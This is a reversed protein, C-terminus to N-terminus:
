IAKGRDRGVRVLVRFVCETHDLHIRKATDVVADLGRKRERREWESGLVPVRDTIDSGCERCRWYEAPVDDVGEDFGLHYRRAIPKCERFEGAHTKQFDRNGLIVADLAVMAFTLLEDERALVLSIGRTLCDVANAQPEDYGLGSHWVPRLYIIQSPM